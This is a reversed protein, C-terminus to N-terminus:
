LKINLGTAESIEAIEKEYKEIEETYAKVEFKFKEAKKYADCFLLIATKKEDALSEFYEVIEPHFGKINEMVADNYKAQSESKEKDAKSDAIFNLIDDVKFDIATIKRISSLNVNEEAKLLEYTPKPKTEENSM